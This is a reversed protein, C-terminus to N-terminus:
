ETFSNFIIMPIGLQLVAFLSVSTMLNFFCMFQGEARFRKDSIENCSMMYQNYADKEFSEMGNLKVTSFNSFRELAYTNIKGVTFLYIM